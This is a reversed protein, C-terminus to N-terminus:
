LAAYKKRRMKLLGVALFLISELALIAINTYFRSGSPYVVMSYFSDSILATPNVHNFWPAVGEVVIRMGSAMLGSLFSCLMSIGIILGTKIGESWKEFSGIVFGFSIGLLCGAFSALFIKGYNSGLDVNLGFKMYALCIVVCLYQFLLSELLQGGVMSVKKMPSVAKRAAVYHQNPQNYTAVNIGSLAAYMCMMGILNFFYTLQEDMNGKAYTIEKNYNVQENVQNILQLLAFPNESAIDTMSEAMVNYHTVFTNLISKEMDMGSLESSVSLRVPTEDYLIGVIQKEKLLSLAKEESVYQVQLFPNDGEKSAERLVTQFPTDEGAGDESVVAVPVADLIEDESLGSFAFHFLTALAIPFLLTWLVLSKRRM